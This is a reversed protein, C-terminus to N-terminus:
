KSLEEEVIQLALAISVTDGVLNTLRERIREAPTKPPIWKRGCEGCYQKDACPKKSM